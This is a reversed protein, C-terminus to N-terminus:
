PSIWGSSPSPVTVKGKVRRGPPRYGSYWYAATCRWQRPQLGIGQTVTSTTRPMCIVALCRATLWYWWSPQFGISQTVPSTTRPMSIVALCSAPLWYWVM